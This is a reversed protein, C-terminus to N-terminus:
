ARPRRSNRRRAARMRPGGAGTGRHRRRTVTSAGDLDLGAHGGSPHRRGRRPPARGRGGLGGAREDLDDDALWRPVDLRRRQRVRRPHGGDRRGRPLSANSWPPGPQPGLSPRRYWRGIASSVVRRVSEPMSTFGCYVAASRSATSNSGMVASPSAPVGGYVRPTYPWIYRVRGHVIRWYEPNPVAASVLSRKWKRRPAPCVPRDHAKSRGVCIPYSESWGRAAPSTPLTPTAISESSSMSIRSDPRGSSVTAVDIVM